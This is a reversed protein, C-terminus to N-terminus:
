KKLIKELTERTIVGISRSLDHICKNQSCVETYNNGKLDSYARLRQLPNLPLNDVLKYGSSDINISAHMRVPKKSGVPGEERLIKSYQIKINYSGCKFTIEPSDYYGYLENFVYLSSSSELKKLSKVHSDWNWNDPWVVHGVNWFPTRYVEFSPIEKDCAIRYFDYYEDSYSYSSITILIITLIHKM